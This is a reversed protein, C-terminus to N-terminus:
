GPAVVVARPGRLVARRPAERATMVGVDHVQEIACEVAAADDAALVPLLPSAAILGAEILRSTAPEIGRAVAFWRDDLLVATMVWEADRHVRRMEAVVRRYIPM